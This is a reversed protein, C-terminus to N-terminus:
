WPSSRSPYSSRCPMTADSSARRASTSGNMVPRKSVYQSRMIRSPLQPPPFGSSAYKAKSPPQESHVTTSVQGLQWAHTQTVHCCAQQATRQPSIMLVAYQERRGPTHLRAQVPRRQLRGAVALARRYHPSRGPGTICQTRPRHEATLTASLTNPPATAAVNSVAFPMHLGGQHQHRAIVSLARARSHLHPAPQKPRLQLLHALVARVVVFANRWDTQQVRAVVVVQQNHGLLTHQGPCQMDHLTTIDPAPHM